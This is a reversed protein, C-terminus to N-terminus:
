IRTFAPKLSYLHVFANGTAELRRNDCQYYCKTVKVTITTKM